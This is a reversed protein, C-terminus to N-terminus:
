TPTTLSGLTRWHREASSEAGHRPPQGARAAHAGVDWGQRQDPQVMPPQRFGTPSASSDTGAGQQGRSLEEGWTAWRM